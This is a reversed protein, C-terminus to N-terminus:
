VLFSIAPDPSSLIDRMVREEPTVYNPDISYASLNMVIELGEVRENSKELLPIEFNFVGEEENLEVKEFPNKMDEQKEEGYEGFEDKGRKKYEKESVIELVANGDSDEDREVWYKMNYKKLFKLLAEELEM